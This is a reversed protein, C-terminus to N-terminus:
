MDSATVVTVNPSPNPPEDTLVWVHGSERKIRNAKTLRQAQNSFSQDNARKNASTFIGKAICVARWKKEDVSPAGLGMLPKGSSQVLTQLETLMQEQQPALKKARSKASKVEDPTIPVLVCTTDGNGLGRVELRSSIKAGSEFDKQKEVEVEVIKDAPMRVALVTDAAGKLASSGRMGRSADKGGHHVVMVTARTAAQLKSVNSVFAGMASSSNEDGGGFARALTDVVILRVDGLDHDRIKEILADVPASSTVLDIPQKWLHFGVAKPVLALHKQLERVRKGFGGAGELAMYLVTGQAVAKDRWPRGAAVHIAIDLAVFSKGAGPEGYVTVLKGQEILDKVVFPTTSAEEEVISELSQFPSPGRRSEIAADLPTIRQDFDAIDGGQQQWSAIGKNTPMAQIRKPEHGLRRKAGRLYELGQPGEVACIVVECNWLRPVNKADWDEVLMAARGDRTLAECDEIKAAVYVLADNQPGVTTSTEAIDEVYDTFDFAANAYRDM